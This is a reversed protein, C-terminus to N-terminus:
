WRIGKIGKRDRKVKIVSGLKKKAKNMGKKKTYSERKHYTVKLQYQIALYLNSYNNPSVNELWAYKNKIGKIKKLESLIATYNIAESDSLRKMGEKTQVLM